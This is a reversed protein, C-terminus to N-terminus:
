CVCTHTWTYIHGANAHESGKGGGGQLRIGASM